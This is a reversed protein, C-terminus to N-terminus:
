QLRGAPQTYVIFGEMRFPAYTIQPTLMQNDDLYMRLQIYEGSSQFNVPRWLTNQVAELPIPDITYPHTELINSGLIAGSATGDQIMSRYSADPYYDVTLQGSTTKQVCFEAHALYVNVGKNIYPNFQKTFVDIQSVRACTGGGLYIGGATFDANITVTHNTIDIAIIKFINYTGNNTIGTMGYLAIFQGVELTHDRIYLTTARVGTGAPVTINTIQM